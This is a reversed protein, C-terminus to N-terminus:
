IVLTCFPDHFLDLLFLLGFQLRGHRGDHVVEILVLVVLPGDQVQGDRGVGLADRFHQIVDLGLVLVPRDIHKTPAAGLAGDDLADVDSRYTKWDNNEMGRASNGYSEEYQEGISVRNTHRYCREELPTVESFHAATTHSTM